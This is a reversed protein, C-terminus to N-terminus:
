DIGLEFKQNKGKYTCQWGIFFRIVPDIQTGSGDMRVMLRQQVQKYYILTLPHGVPPAKPPYVVRGDVEAHGDMLNISIVHGKGHLSFKRIKGENQLVDYYANKQGPLLRSQDAQTQQILTGDFLEAIFLYDLM